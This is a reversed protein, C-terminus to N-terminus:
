ADVRVDRCVRGICALVYGAAKRQIDLGEEEGRHVAGDIVRTACTGCQGQRCSFPINVGQQEAVELLTKGSLVHCRKKSRVFDVQVASRANTGPPPEKGGFSEQMIRTPDVGLTKLIAKAGSMFAPPGCLFFDSGGIADVNERVLELSLRGSPGRWELHPHSLLVVYRFQDRRSQIEQLEREFIIDKHTQVAYILTVETRICLDDIYRLMSMMPTIGSGAALMVIRKHRTEDFCFKGHPGSAQLTLGPQVMDNLFTSAKGQESRKCTIEVYKSQTPSSSISYSRVVRAGGVMLKFTLFQGPRPTFLEGPPLAFRFTKV